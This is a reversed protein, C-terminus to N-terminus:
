EHLFIEHGDGGGEKEEGVNVKAAGEGSRLTGGKKAVELGKSGGGGGGRGGVGGGRNRAQQVNGGGGKVGSGKGVKRAATAGAAGSCSGSAGVRAM